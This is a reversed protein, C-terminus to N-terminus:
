ASILQVFRLVLPLCGAFVFLLVAILLFKGSSPDKYNNSGM